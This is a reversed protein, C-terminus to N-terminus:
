SSKLGLEIPYKRISKNILALKSLNATCVKELYDVRGFSWDEYYKNTLYNLKLLIDVACVYGKEYRNQDALRKVEKVLKLREFVVLGRM